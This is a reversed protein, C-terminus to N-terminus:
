PVHGVMDLRALQALHSFAEDLTTGSAQEFDGDRRAEALWGLRWGVLWGDAELQRLVVEWERSSEYRLAVLIQLAAKFLEVDLRVPRVGEPLGVEITRPGAM